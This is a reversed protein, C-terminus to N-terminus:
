RPSRRAAPNEPSSVGLVEIGGFDVLIEFRVRRENADLKDLAAIGKLTAAASAKLAAPTRRARLRELWESDSLPM